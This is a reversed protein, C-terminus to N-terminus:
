MGKIVYSGHSRTVYVSNSIQINQTSHGIETPRVIRITRPAAIGYGGYTCTYLLGKNPVVVSHNVTLVLINKGAAIKAIDTETLIKYAFAKLKQKYRINKKVGNVSNYAKKAIPRCIELRDGVQLNGSIVRVRIKHESLEVQPDTRYSNTSAVSILVPANSDSSGGSNIAKIVQEVTSGLGISM